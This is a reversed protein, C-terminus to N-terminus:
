KLDSMYDPLSSEKWYLIYSGNKEPLIQLQHPTPLPISLYEQCPGPLAGEVETSVCVNYHGGYQTVFEHLLEIESSPKLSTRSTM